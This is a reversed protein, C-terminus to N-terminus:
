QYFCLKKRTINRKRMLVIKKRHLNIGAFIQLFENQYHNLAIAKAKIKRNITKVVRAKTAKKIFGHSVRRATSGVFLVRLLHM